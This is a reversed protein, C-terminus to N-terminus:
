RPDNMNNQTYKKKWHAIMTISAFQSWGVWTGGLPPTVTNPPIQGRKLTM